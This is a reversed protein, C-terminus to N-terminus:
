EGGARITTTVGIWCGVTYSQGEKYGRAFIDSVTPLYKKYKSIQANADTISITGREVGIDAINIEFLQVLSSPELSSAESYLQKIATSAESKNM